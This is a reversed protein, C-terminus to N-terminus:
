PKRIQKLRRASEDEYREAKEEAMDAVEKRGDLYWVEGKLAQGHDPLSKVYAAFTNLVQAAHRDLAAAFARPEVTGGIGTALTFAMGELEARADCGCRIGGGHHPPDEPFDVAPVDILNRCHDPFGDCPTPEAPFTTM